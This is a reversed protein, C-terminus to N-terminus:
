QIKFDAAMGYYGCLFLLHQLEHVYLLRTKGIDEIDICYDTNIIIDIGENYFYDPYHRTDLSKIFVFGNQKMIEETLEIGGFENPDGSIWYDEDGNVYIEIVDSTIEHVKGIIGGQKYRVWDGIM